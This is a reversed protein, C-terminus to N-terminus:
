EGFGDYENYAQDLTDCWQEWEENIKTQVEDLWDQMELEYGM